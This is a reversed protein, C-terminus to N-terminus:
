GFLWARFSRARRVTYQAILAFPEIKRGAM